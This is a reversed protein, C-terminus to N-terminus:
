HAPVLVRLKRLRGCLATFRAIDDLPVLRMAWQVEFKELVAGRLKRLLPTLNNPLLANELTNHWHM